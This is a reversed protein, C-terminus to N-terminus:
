FPYDIEDVTEVVEEVVPKSVNDFGLKVESVEGLEMPPMTTVLGGSRLGSDYVLEDEVTYTLREQELIAGTHWIARPDELVPDEAGSGLGLMDSFVEHVKTQHEMWDSPHSDKLALTIHNYLAWASNTDVNYDYSPKSMEKKITNLQMTNLVEKKFFLEGLIDHAGHSSLLVSKMQDKQQVLSNWYMNADNIFDSIKGEALIDATGKHVRKYAGFKSDNLMMGNMCVKVLGGLNFRFAFQKNYSNTFNAALEIDPDSMYNMKLTGLAVQGDNSCRYDEGNIIFGANTIESRMRNIVSAHSIPTYTETKEPLATSLMKSYANMGNLTRKM